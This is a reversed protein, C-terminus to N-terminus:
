LPASTKLLANPAPQDHQGAEEVHRDKVADAVGEAHEHVDKPVAHIKLHVPAYIYGVQERVREFDKILMENEINM